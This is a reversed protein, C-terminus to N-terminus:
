DDLTLFSDILPIIEAASDELVYHGSHAYRHVQAHPLLQQWRTLFHHDFVFDKDGWCILTPVQDLLGQELQEEVQAVIAYSSDEPSLPIDQVFRLTAIRHAPRDYPACYADRLQKDMRRRTVAMHTAGRAFANGYKVMLAGLWTNRVLRLTFPLPKNQPLRFGATNLLVLRQVRGPNRAAWAMGIMGGWDHLVLSLPGEPVLQDLLAELDDVRSKLTYAYDAPAPKDSLGCGIHDPAICRLRDRLSQVLNRYYISWTPNGHVMVVPPGEGEDLTHMCVSGLDIWSGDFPYLERPIPRMPVTGFGVDYSNERNYNAAAFQLRSANSQM